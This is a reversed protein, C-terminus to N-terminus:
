AAGEFLSLQLSLEVTKEDAIRIREEINLIPALLAENLLDVVKADSHYYAVTHSTFHITATKRDSSIIIKDLM